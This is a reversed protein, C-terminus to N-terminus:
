RIAWLWVEWWRAVRCQEMVRRPAQGKVGVSSAIGVRPPLWRPCCVYSLSAHTYTHTRTHEIKTKDIEAVAGCDVFVQTM